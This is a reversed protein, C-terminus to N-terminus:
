IHMGAWILFRKSQQGMGKNRGQNIYMFTSGHAFVIHSKKKFPPLPFMKPFVNLVQSCHHSGSPLMKLVKQSCM